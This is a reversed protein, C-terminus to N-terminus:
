GIQEFDLCARVVLKNWNDADDGISSVSLQMWFIDIVGEPYYTIGCAKWNPLIETPRCSTMHRSCINVQTRFKGCYWLRPSTIGVGRLEAVATENKDM